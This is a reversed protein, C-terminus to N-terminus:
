KKKTWMADHIAVIEEYQGRHYEADETNNDQKAYQWCEYQNDREDALIQSLNNFQIDSLQITKM